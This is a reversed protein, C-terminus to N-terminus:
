NEAEPPDPNENFRRWTWILYMVNGAIVGHPM